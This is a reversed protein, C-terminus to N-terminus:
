SSWAPQMDSYLVM